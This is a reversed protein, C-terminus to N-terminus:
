HFKQLYAEFNFKNDLIYAPKIHFLQYDQNTSEKYHLNQDHKDESYKAKHYKPKKHDYHFPSESEQIEM